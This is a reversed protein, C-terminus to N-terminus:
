RDEIAPYRSSSRQRIGKGTEPSALAGVNKMGPVVALLQGLGCPVGGRPGQTPVLALDIRIADQIGDFASATGLM